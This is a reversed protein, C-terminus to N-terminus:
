AHVDGGAHDEALDAGIPREGTAVVVREVDGVVGAHGRGIHQQGVGVGRRVDDREIRRKGVSLRARHGDLDAVHHRMLLVAEVQYEGIRPDIFAARDIVAHLNGIADAELRRGAMDRRHVAGRARTEVNTKRKLIECGIHDLM